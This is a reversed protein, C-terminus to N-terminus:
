EGRLPSKENLRIMHHFRTGDDNRMGVILFARGGRQWLQYQRTPIKFEGTIEQESHASIQVASELPNGPVPAPALLTLKEVSVAQEGPNVIWVRLEVQTDHGISATKVVACSGLVHPHNPSEAALLMGAPIALLLLTTALQRVV